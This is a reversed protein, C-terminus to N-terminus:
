RGIRVPRPSAAATPASSWPGFGLAYHGKLTMRVQGTAADCIAVTRDGSASAITRGDPSYAVAYVVDSHQSLTRELGGMAANWVKVTGDESASALHRGDPSFLVADVPSLHGELNHQVEGSIADWVKCKSTPAPRPSKAAM